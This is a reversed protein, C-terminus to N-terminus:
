PVKPAGRLPTVAGDLATAIREAAARRTILDDPDTLSDCTVLRDHLARVRQVASALGDRDAVLADLQDSTIENVSLRDAPPQPADPAAAVTPPDVARCAAEATRRAEKSPWTHSEGDVAAVTADWICARITVGGRCAEAVANRVAQLFRETEPDRM